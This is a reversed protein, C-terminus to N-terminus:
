PAAVVHHTPHTDLEPDAIVVGHVEGTVKCVLHCKANPRETLGHHKCVADQAAHVSHPLHRDQVLMSEGPGLHQPLSLEFDDDPVIIRRVIKSKTGYVIGVKTSPM